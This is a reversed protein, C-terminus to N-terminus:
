AFDKRRRERRGALEDLSDSTTPALETAPEVSTRLVRGWREPYHRELLWAAAAWSGGRAAQAILAVNRLEGEARARILREALERDAEVEAAVLAVDPYAGLRLIAVLEEIQEQSPRRAHVRCRDFGPLPANRCPAGRRTSQSCRASVRVGEAPAAM